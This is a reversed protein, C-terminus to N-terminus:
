KINSRRIIAKTLHFVICVTVTVGSHNAVHKKFRSDWRTMLAIDSATKGKKRFVADTIDKLIELVDVMDYSDWANNDSGLIEKFKPLYHQRVKTYTPNNSNLESESNRLTWKLLVFLYQRLLQEYNVM